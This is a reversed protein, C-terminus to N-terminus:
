PGDQDTEHNRVDIQQSRKYRDKKKQTADCNNQTEM